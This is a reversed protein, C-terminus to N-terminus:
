YCLCISKKADAEKKEKNLKSIQVFLLAIIVGAILLTILVGLLFSNNAKRQMPNVAMDINRRIKRCFVVITNIINYYICFFLLILNNYCLSLIITIYNYYQNIPNDEITFAIVAIGELGLVITAM